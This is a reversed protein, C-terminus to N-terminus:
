SAGMIKLIQNLKGPSINFISHSISLSWTTNQVNLLNLVNHVNLVGLVGLVNLMTRTLSGQHDPDSLTPSRAIASQLCPAQKTPVSQLFVM